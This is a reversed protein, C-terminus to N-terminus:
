IEDLYNRRLYLRIIIACLWACVSVCPTKLEESLIFIDEALAVHSTPGVELRYSEFPGGAGKCFRLAEAKRHLVSRCSAGPLLPTSPSLDRLLRPYSSYHILSLSFSM